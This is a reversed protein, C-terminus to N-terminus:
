RVRVPHAVVPNYLCGHDNWPVTAPQSHGQGDTARVRIAHDGPRAQWGFEFRVWAGAINPERLSAQQWPGGDIAVDARSVRGEGSFARGRITHPGAPLTAPWDLELVSM